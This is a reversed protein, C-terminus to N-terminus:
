PSPRHVSPAGVAAGIRAGRRAPSAMKMQVSARGDETHRWARVCRAVWESETSSEILIRAKDRKELWKAFSQRDTRVRREILQGTETKICVQSANKHVEVGVHDM